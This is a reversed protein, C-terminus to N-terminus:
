LLNLRAEETGEFAREVFEQDREYLISSMLLISKAVEVCFDLEIPTTITGSSDDDLRSSLVSRAASIVNAKHEFM